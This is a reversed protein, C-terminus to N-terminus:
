VYRPSNREHLYWPRVAQHHSKIVHKTFYDALNEQGPQWQVDFLELFVQDVVWFSGMEMPRLQQHKVTDNAIGAATSNDCHVPTPPQKHGMEELMLCIIVGEKMNLILAGLKSEAVSAVVIKLIKCAVFMSSNMKIEQGKIPVSGLFFCGALRSRTKPEALYSADLYINLVM